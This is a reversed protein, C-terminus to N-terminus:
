GNGNEMELERIAMRWYYTESYRGVKGFRMRAVLREAKDKDGGLMSILKERVEIDVEVKAPMRTAQSRTSRSRRKGSGKLVAEIAVLLIVGTILGLIFEM